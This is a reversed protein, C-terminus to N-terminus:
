ESPLQLKTKPAWGVFKLNNVWLLDMALWKLKTHDIYRDFDRHGICHDFHYHHHICILIIISGGELERQQQLLESIWCVFEYKHEGGVGM